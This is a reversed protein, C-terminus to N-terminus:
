SYARADDSLASCVWKAFPAFCLAVIATAVFVTRYPLTDYLAGAFVVGVFNMGYQMILQLTYHGSRHEPKPLGYALVVSVNAWLASVLTMIAFSAYVAIPHRVLIVPVFMLAIGIPWLPLLRRPGFRDTIFGIVLSSPVRIASGMMSLFAVSADPMHLERLGYVTVFGLGSTLLVVSASFMMFRRYRLDHWASKLMHKSWAKPVKEIPTPKERAFAAFAYGSQCVVWMILFLYGYSMPKVVTSLVWAGLAASGMSAVSGFSSSLGNYRGRYNMPICAAVYEQHPLAVFGAFFYYALIMTLVFSLLWENTLGLQKSMVVVLGAVGIAGIYPINAAIMYWKKTRFRRSIWPSVFMGFLSAVTAGSVIGIMTNSAHLYLLLPTLALGLETSGMIWITDLMICCKMNRRIDKRSLYDDEEHEPAPNDISVDVQDTHGAQADAALNECVM